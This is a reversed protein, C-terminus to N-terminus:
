LDKYLTQLQSPRLTPLLISSFISCGQPSQILSVSTICKILVHGLNLSVRQKARGYFLKLSVASKKKSPFCESFIDCFKKFPMLICLNIITLQFSFLHCNWKMVSPHRVVKTLFMKNLYSISLDALNLLRVRNPNSIQNIFLTQFKWRYHKLVFRTPGRDKRSELCVWDFNLPVNM